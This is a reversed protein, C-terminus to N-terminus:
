IANTESRLPRRPIQTTPASPPAGRFTMSASVVPASVQDRSPARM